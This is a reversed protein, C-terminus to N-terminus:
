NPPPCPPFHFPHPTTPNIEAPAGAERTDPPEPNLRTGYGPFTTTDFYVGDAAVYAHGKAILREILAIMEPIHETAKCVVHPDLIHLKRRDTISQATYREGMRLPDLQERAPPTAM